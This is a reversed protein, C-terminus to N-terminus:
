DWTPAYTAIVVGTSSTTGNVLRLAVEVGDPFLRRGSGLVLPHIMLLFEDILDAAALSGILDGSGTVALVGESQTKLTAVAGPVDGRLLTSNPWPLPETLTTSAVYKPTDNLMPGFPSDRQRNWYDLLDCYTRRGFLWGTLGGGAVMSDGMAKQLAGDPPSATREGWGSHRFGDRTDEDARGPGQMVGDLTVHNMVVIKSM